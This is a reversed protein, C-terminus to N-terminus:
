NSSAMYERHENIGEILDGIGENKVAVTMKVPPRWGKNSYDLMANIERATKRTLQSSM